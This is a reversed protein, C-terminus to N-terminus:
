AEAAFPDNEPNTWAWRCSYGAVNCELGYSCKRARVFYAPGCDPVIEHPYVREEMLVAECELM